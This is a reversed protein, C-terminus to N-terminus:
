FSLHSQKLSAEPILKLNQYINSELDRKIYLSDTNDMIITDISGM